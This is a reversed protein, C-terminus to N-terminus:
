RPPRDWMTRSGIRRIFAAMGLMMFGMLVVFAGILWVLVAPEIIILVGLAIFILGPVILAMGSFPRAMFAGCMEAMPCMPMPERETM